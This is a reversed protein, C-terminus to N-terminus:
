TTPAINRLFSPYGQPYLQGRGPEIAADASASGAADAALPDTADVKKEASPAEKIKYVAAFAQASVCFYHGTVGILVWDGIMVPGSSSYVSSVEGKNDITVFIGGQNRNKIADAVKEHDFEAPLDSPDGTWLAALLTPENIVTVKVSKMTNEKKSLKSLNLM